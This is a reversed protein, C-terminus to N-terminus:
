KEGNTHIYEFAGIDRRSDRSSMLFDYIVPKATAAGTNIARSAKQLSFDSGTENVLMPDGNIAHKDRDPSKMGLGFYINNDLIMDISQTASYFYGSCDKNAGVINNVVVINDGTWDNNIAAYKENRSSTCVNHLTNHFVYMLRASGTSFRLGAYATNYIINNSIIASETNDAINVGYRVTDHMLNHHIQINKIRSDGDSLGVSDYTQIINGGYLRALHNFAIEVDEAGGDIYIGHNRTGGGIDHIYNGLIKIHTGDGTIGGSRADRYKKGDIMNNDRDSADWDFLENNVIRWNDSRHQLNIPGDIVKPGGVRIRLNSITIWDSDVEYKYDSYGDVGHIGCSSDDQCQILVDEGPYGMITIPGEGAEGTPKTGTIRRFRLFRNGQGIDNWTKGGRMVIFDGPQIHSMVGYQQKGSTQVHRFPKSPDNAEGKDDDGNVNDVYYIDGPQITFFHAQKSAMGNVEIHLPLAIGAPSNGLEGIQVTIRQLKKHPQAFQSVAEGMYKYSAVEVNNICIHTTKGLDNKSGFNFGYISLYAGQDNEGGSAPGSLIDTFLIQPALVDGSQNKVAHVGCKNSEIAYLPKMVGVTFFLLLCSFVLLKINMLRYVRISIM